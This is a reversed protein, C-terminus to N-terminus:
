RAASGPLLSRWNVIVALPPAPAGPSPVNVLFRDSDPAVDFSRIAGGADFLRASAVAEPLSGAFSISVTHIESGRRYFFEATEFTAGAVARGAPNWRPESGGGSTLRARRGPQPFSDVYVEPQGSEDSAYLMWQGDPSIAAQTENFPGEADAEPEASGTAPVLMLDDRTANRTQGVVFTRADPSWDWLRIPADFKRLTQEPLQAM